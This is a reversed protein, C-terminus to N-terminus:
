ARVDFSYQSLVSTGGEQKMMEEIVRVSKERVLVECDMQYGKRSLRENLMYMHQELFDLLEERELYFKTSVKERTLAVYIDMSGLHEMDLHLLASITGDKRALNKKNTYVYLDGHAKQGSLKLPLQVYTYTQNLQNLFDVSERLEGVAKGLASQGAGAESIVQALRATQEQIRSYLGSVSTRDLGQEPRLLMNEEMRNQLLDKIGSDSLLERLSRKTFEGKSLLELITDALEGMSISGAKILEVNEQSVGMQLLKEGFRVRGANDPMNQILTDEIAATEIKGAQEVPIGSANETTKGQVGGKFYEAGTNSEADEAVTGGKLLVTESGDEAAYQIEGVPGGPLCEQLAKEGTVSDQMSVAQREEPLSAGFVRLMHYLLRGAGAADTDVLNLVTEAATEALTEIGGLIQHELNRYGAIQNLNADNVEMGLKRLAILNEIEAEPFATMDKYMGQLSSIDISMGEKMMQAVLAATDETVPISAASLAKLVNADQTLNEYLPRLAIQVRGNGSVGGQSQVEFTMSQGVAINLDRELRATIVTDQDLRIQVESGNKAIVEGQLTQGSKVYKIQEVYRTTQSDSVPANKAAGSVSSINQERKSFLGSFNLSM